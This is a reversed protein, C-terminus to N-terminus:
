KEKAQGTFERVANIAKLQERFERVAEFEKLIQAEKLYQEVRQELIGKSNWRYVTNAKVGLAKAIVTKKVGKIDM